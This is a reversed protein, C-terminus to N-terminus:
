RNHTVTTPSPKDTTKVSTQAVKETSSRETKPDETKSEEVKPTEESAKSDDQVKYGSQTLRMAEAKDGTVYETGSLSVLRFEVAM